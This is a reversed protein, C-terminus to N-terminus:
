REAREREVCHGTNGAYDVLDYCPPIPEGTMEEKLTWPCVGEICQRSPLSVAGTRLRPREVPVLDSM